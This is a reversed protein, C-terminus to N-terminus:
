VGESVCASFFAEAFEDPDTFVLGGAYGHLYAASIARAEGDSNVQTATWIADLGDPISAMNWGDIAGTMAVETLAACIDPKVAMAPGAAIMTILAARIM